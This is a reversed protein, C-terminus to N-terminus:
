SLFFFDRFDGFLSQIYCWFAFIFEVHSVQSKSNKSHRSRGSRESGHESHAGDEQHSETSTMKFELTQRGGTMQWVGVFGNFVFM